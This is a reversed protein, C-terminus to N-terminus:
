SIGFRSQLESTHEESRDGTEKVTLDTSSIPDLPTSNVPLTFPPKPKIFIAPRSADANMFPWEPLTLPPISPVHISPRLSKRDLSVFGALGPSLTSNLGPM